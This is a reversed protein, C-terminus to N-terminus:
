PKEQQKEAVALGPQVPWLPAGLPPGATRPGGGASGPTVGQVLWRM